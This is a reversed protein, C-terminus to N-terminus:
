PGHARANSGRVAYASPRGGKEGFDDETAIAPPRGLLECGVTFAWLTGGAVDLWELIRVVAHGATADAARGLIVAVWMSWAFRWALSRGHILKRNGIRERFPM